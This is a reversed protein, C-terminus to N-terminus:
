ILPRLRVLRSCIAAEISISVHDSVEMPPRQTYLNEINQGAEEWTKADVLHLDMMSSLLFYTLKWEIYRRWFSSMARHFECGLDWLIDHDAFAIIYWEVLHAVIMWFVNIWSCDLGLVSVNWWRSAFTVFWWYWRIPPTEGAGSERTIPTTPRSSHITRWAWSNSTGSM